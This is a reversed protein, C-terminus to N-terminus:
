EVSEEFYMKERRSHRKNRRQNVEKNDEQFHRQKKKRCDHCRKPMSFGHAHMRELEKASIAFDSGCQICTIIKDKM